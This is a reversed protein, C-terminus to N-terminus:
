GVRTYVLGFDRRWDADEEHIEWEGRITAGDESFRGTFRQAFNFDSFDPKTRSLKWVGAEITMEYVRAVGRSDFYHQLYTGRGEDFGILAIGDPAAPHPVEWRQILFKEGALWEFSTRGQLGEAGPFDAEITWEGLFQALPEV